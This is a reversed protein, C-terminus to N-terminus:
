PSTPQKRQESAIGRPLKLSVNQAEVKVAAPAGSTLNHVTVRVETDKADASDEGRPSALMKDLLVRMIKDDGKMAMAIAKKMLAPGKETLSERLIEELMLRALTIRNKTGKARGVPNGSVGVPFRGRSDRKVPVREIPLLLEGELPKVSTKVSTM